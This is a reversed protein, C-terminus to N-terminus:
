PQFYVESLFAINHSTLKIKVETANSIDIEFPQPDTGKKITIDKVKVGDIYILTYGDSNSSRKDYSLFAVGKLRSYNKNVKFSYTWSDSSCGLVNTRITGTNDKMDVEPVMTGTNYFYDLDSIYVKEPEVQAEKEPVMTESISVNSKLSDNENLLNTIEQALSENTGKLQENEAKFKGNNTELTKIQAEQETIKSNAVDLKGSLRTNEKEAAVHKDQLQFYDEKEIRYKEGREDHLTIVGTNPGFIAGLIAGLVSTIISAIITYAGQSLKKKKKKENKDNPIANPNGHVTNARRRINKDETM